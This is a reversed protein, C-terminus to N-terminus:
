ISFKLLRVNEKKVWGQESDMTAVKYWDENSDLIRVKVGSVVPKIKESVSDPGQLISDTGEFIIAYQNQYISNERFTGALITIFVLFLLLSGSFYILKRNEYDKFFHIFLLGLLLFFLIVSLLKWTGPLFLNAMGSWWEALFFPDLEVIDADLREVALQLNVKIDGAYPDLILAKEFHYVADGFQGNNYAENGKNFYEDASIVGVGEAQISFSFVIFLVIFKFSSKM